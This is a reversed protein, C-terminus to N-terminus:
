ASGNLRVIRDRSRVNANLAVDFRVGHFGTNFDSNEWMRVTLPINTLKRRASRGTVPMMLPATNVVISSKQLMLRPAMLQATTGLITIARSHLNANVNYCTANATNVANNGSTAGAVPLIIAPYVRVNTVGTATSNIAVITFQQLYSLPAQKRNDYAYVGSITFSTGVAGTFTGDIDMNMTKYFGPASSNAVDAYDVSALDSATTLSGSFTSNVIVPLQQTFTTMVGGLDGKFGVRLARNPDVAGENALTGVFSSLKQKDTFNLVGRLNDDSVGLEKLRTYGAMFEDLTDVNATPHVTDGDSSVWNNATTTAFGLIYADIQEALNTAANSLAESQRADAISQIMQFDGWGMNANFTQDIQFQESGFVTDQIGQGPSTDSLNAVGNQTRTVVYRPGVQETVTLRNRDNFEQDFEKWSVLDATLLTNEFIAAFANLVLKSQDVVVSPTAM